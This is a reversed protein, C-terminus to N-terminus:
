EYIATPIIPSNLILDKLLQQHKFTLSTLPLRPKGAPLKALEMMAKIPVPNTEIQSADMFPFLEEYIAQAQNKVMEGVKHPMLNSLVSILGSAGIALLPLSMLDDGAFLRFNPLRNRIQAAYPISSSADKIGIINKKTSLRVLLEISLDVGTRKPHNYLIIPLSTGNAISEFHLALGGQSPRSYYPAIILLGDAGLTEAVKVKEITRATSIDGVNVIVPVKKEEVAIQIVKKQEEISLTAGEGTTGLVLLADIGEQIQFCINEGLGQEDLKGENFPTVLATITGSFAM